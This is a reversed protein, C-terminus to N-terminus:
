IVLPLFVIKGLLTINYSVRYLIADTDRVAVDVQIGTYLNNIPQNTFANTGNAFPNPRWVDIAFGSNNSMNANFVSSMAAFPCWQEVQFARPAGNYPQPISYKNIAYNLPGNTDPLLHLTEFLWQATSNGKIDTVAVGSLVMLWKQEHINQPRTENMALAAPTILWNQGAFTEIRKM